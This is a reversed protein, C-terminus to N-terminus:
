CLNHLSTICGAARFHEVLAKWHADGSELTKSHGLVILGRKARTIAVNMRRWDCLFGVQLCANETGATKEFLAWYKAM